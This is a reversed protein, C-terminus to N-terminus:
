GKQVYWWQGETRIWSERIPTTIRAGKLAYEVTVVVECVEESACEVTEAKASKWFGARVSRAFDEYSMVARSTPSYFQYAEALREKVLADWRAQSREMVIAERSRATDTLTGKPAACGVLGAVLGAVVTRLLWGSFVMGRSFTRVAM